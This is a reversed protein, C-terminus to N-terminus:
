TRSASPVLLTRFGGCWRGSSCRTLSSSWLNRPSLGLWVEASELISGGESKLFPGGRNEASRALMQPHEPLTGARDATSPEHRVTPYTGALMRAGRGRALPCSPRARLGRPTSAIGLVHLLPPQVLAPALLGRTAGRRREGHRRRQRRKGPLPRPLVEPQPAGVKQTLQTSHQEDGRFVLPPSFDNLGNPIPASKGRSGRFVLAQSLQNIDSPNRALKGQDDRFVRARHHWPVRHRLLPARQVEFEMLQIQAVLRQPDALGRAFPPQQRRDGLGALLHRDDDHSALPVGAVVDDNIAVLPDPAQPLQVAIRDVRDAPRHAFRLREDEMLQEVALRGVGRELLPPQQPRQMLGVGARQFLQRAAEVAAHAPHRPAHAQHALQRRDHLSPDLVPLERRVGRHLIEHGQRAGVGGRAHLQGFRDGRAAQGRTLDTPEVVRVDPSGRRDAREHEGVRPQHQAQVFLHLPRGDVHRGRRTGHHGQETIQMDDACHGTAGTLAHAVAEGHDGGIAVADPARATAGTVIDVFQRLM